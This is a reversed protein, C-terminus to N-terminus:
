LGERTGVTCYAKGQHHRVIVMGKSECIAAQKDEYDQILVMVYCFISLGTFWGLFTKLKKVQSV